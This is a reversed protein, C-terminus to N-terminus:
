VFFRVPERSRVFQESVFVKFCSFCVQFGFFAVIEIEVETVSVVESFVAYVGFAAQYVAVCFVVDLAAKPLVAAGLEADIFVVPM